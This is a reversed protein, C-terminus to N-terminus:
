GQVHEVPGRRDAVVVNQGEHIRVRTGLDGDDEYVDEWGSRAHPGTLSYVHRADRPSLNVCGHSIRFGFRDHWYAGHLAINDHIYQVYPVAEVAYAEAAGPRSSMSGFAHKEGIRFLGRPTPGKLGSSILTAYIPTTGRMVTLVQQDLEVDVWIEDAAVVEDGTLAAVPEFRRIDRARVFGGDVLEYWRGGTPSRLPEPRVFHEAHYDLTRVAEAEPDAAVRVTTAPWGVAWALRQGEPVPETVLDRGQFGSPRYRDLERELMVRGRKDIFVNQGNERLLSVFAFDRGPSYVTQPEDGALFSQLSRWRRAPVDKRNQAFFYPLVDGGRTAPMMRPVKTTKRSQKLCVFGGNGVHAWGDGGCGRGEVREFVEFPEGRPIRARIPARHDPALRVTLRQKAARLEIPGLAAPDSAPTSPASATADKPIVTGLRPTAFTPSSAEEVTMRMATAAPEHHSVDHLEAEPQAEATQPRAAAQDCAPLLCLIAGLGVASLGLTPQAIWSSRASSRGQIRSSQGM